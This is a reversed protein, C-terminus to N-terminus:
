SKTMQVSLIVGAKVAVLRGPSRALEMFDRIGDDISGALM